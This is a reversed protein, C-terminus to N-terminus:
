GFHTVTRGPEAQGATYQWGFTYGTENGCVDVATVTVTWTGDTLDELARVGYGGAADIFVEVRQETDSTATVRFGSLTGNDTARASLTFGEERIDWIEAQRLAPPTADVFVTGADLFASENGAADRAAARVQYEGEQWIDIDLQGQGGSPANYYRTVWNGDETQRTEVRFVNLRENDTGAVQLFFGDARASAVEAQTMAPAQGDQGTYPIDLLAAVTGAGCMGDSGLGERTQFAAVAERTHNCYYGTIYKEELLGLQCLRIQIVTVGAGIYVASGGEMNWGFHSPNYYLAYVIESDAAFAVDYNGLGSVDPSSTIHWTEGAYGPKPQLPKYLGYDEMYYTQGNYDYATAFNTAIWYNSIDIATGTNHNSCGPRAVYGSIWGNDWLRLAERYYYRADLTELDFASLDITYQEPWGPAQEATWWFKAVNRGNWTMNNRYPGTNNNAQYLSIVEQYCAPRFANNVGLLEGGHGTDRAFTALGIILNPDTGALIADRADNVRAAGWGLNECWRNAAYSFDFYTVAEEYSLFNVDRPTRSEQAEGDEAAWVPLGSLLAAALLLAACRRSGKKM